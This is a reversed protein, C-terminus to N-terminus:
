FKYGFSLGLKSYSGNTTYGVVSQSMNYIGYIAEVVMNKDITYGAGVGYYIGGNLSIPASPAPNVSLLDYGLRGTVYFQDFKYQVLGYIPIFNFATSFGTFNRNLQYELGGGVMLNDGMESTYEFGLSFGGDTSQSTGITFTGGLDYGVKATMDAMTVSGVAFVLVLSVILALVLKKM